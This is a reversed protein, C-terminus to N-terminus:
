KMITEEPSEVHQGDYYNNPNPKIARVDARLLKDRAVITKKEKSVL